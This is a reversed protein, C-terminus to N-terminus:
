FMIPVEEWLICDLCDVNGVRWIYLQHMDPRLHISRTVDSLANKYQFSLFTDIFPFVFNWPIKYKMFCIDVYILFLVKWQGGFCSLWCLTGVSNINM